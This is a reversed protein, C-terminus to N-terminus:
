KRKHQKEVVITIWVVSMNHKGWSRGNGRVPRLTRIFLGTENQMIERM